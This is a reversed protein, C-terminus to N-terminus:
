SNQFITEGVNLIKKCKICYKMQLSKEIFQKNRTSRVMVQFMLDGCQPCLKYPTRVFVKKQYRGTKTSDGM